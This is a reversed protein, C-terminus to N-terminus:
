RAAAAEELPLAIRVVDGPLAGQPFGILLTRGPEGGGVVTAEVLQPWRGTAPLEVWLWAMGEPAPPVADGKPVQFTARPQTGGGEGDKGATPSANCSSGDGNLVGCADLSQDRGGCGFFHAVDYAVDSPEPRTHEKYTHGLFAAWNLYHFNSGRDLEVVLSLAPMFVMQALGMGHVGVLANSARATQVQELM